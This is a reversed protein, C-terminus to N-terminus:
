CYILTRLACWCFTEVLHLHSKYQGSRLYNCDPDFRYFTGSEIPLESSSLDIEASVLALDPAHSQIDAYFAQALLYSTADTWNARDERKMM